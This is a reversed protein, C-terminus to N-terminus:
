ASGFSAEMSESNWFGGASFSWATNFGQSVCDGFEPGRILGPEPRFGSGFQVDHIITTHKQPQKLLAHAEGSGLAGAM